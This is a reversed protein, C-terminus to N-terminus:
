GSRNIKEHITGADSSNQRRLHRRIKIADSFLIFSGVILWLGAAEYIWSEDRVLLSMLLAGLVMEMIGLAIISKPREIFENEKVTFGGLLRLIGTLLIVFGLILVGEERTFPRDAFVMIGAMIGLIGTLLPLKRTKESRM